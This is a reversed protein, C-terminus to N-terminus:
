YGLNCQALKNANKDRGKSREKKTIYGINNDITSQINNPIM